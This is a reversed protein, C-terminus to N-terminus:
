CPRAPPRRRPSRASLRALSRVVLSACRALRAQIELAAARAEVASFVASASRFLGPDRRYTLVSPLEHEHVGAVECATAMEPTGLALVRVRTEDEYRRVLKGVEFPSRIGVVGSRIRQQVGRHVITKDAHGVLTVELLSRV